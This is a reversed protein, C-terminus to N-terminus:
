LRCHEVECFILLFALKTCKQVSSGRICFCICTWETYWFRRERTDTEYHDDVHLVVVVRQTDAWLVALIWAVAVGVEAVGWQRTGFLAENLSPSCCCQQPVSKTGPLPSFNMVTHLCWPVALENSFLETFLQSIEM